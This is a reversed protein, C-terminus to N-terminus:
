CCCSKVFRGTEDDRCREVSADWYVNGSGCDGCDSDSDLLCGGLTLALGAALALVRRKM